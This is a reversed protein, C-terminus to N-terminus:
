RARQPFDPAPPKAPTPPPPPPQFHGGNLQLPPGTNFGPSLPPQVMKIEEGTPLVTTNHINGQADKYVQTGGESNLVQNLREQASPQQAPGDENALLLTPSVSSTVIVILCAGMKLM